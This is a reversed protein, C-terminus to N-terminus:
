LKGFGLKGMYEMSHGRIAIRAYLFVYTNTISFLITHMVLGLLM